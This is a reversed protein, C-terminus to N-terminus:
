EAAQKADAIEEQVRGKVEQAKGKVQMEKNDLADGTAQKTKGAAKNAASKIHESEM